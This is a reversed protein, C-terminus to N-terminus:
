NENKNPKFRKYSQTRQKGFFLFTISNLLFIMVICKKLVYDCSTGVARSLKKCNLFTNSICPEVTKSSALIFVIGLLRMRM